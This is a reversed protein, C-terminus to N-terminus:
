YPQDNGTLLPREVFVTPRNYEAGVLLDFTSCTFCGLGTLSRLTERSLADRFYPCGQEGLGDFSPSTTYGKLLAASRYFVAARDGFGRHITRETSGAETGHSFHSLRLGSLLSDM